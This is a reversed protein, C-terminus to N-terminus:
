GGREKEEGTEGMRDWTSDLLYVRSFGAFVLVTAVNEEWGFGFTITPESDSPATAVAVVLKFSM